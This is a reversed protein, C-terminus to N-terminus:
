RKVPVPKKTDELRRKIETPSMEENQLLTKLKMMPKPMLQLGIIASKMTFPETSPILPSFDPDIIMKYAEPDNLDDFDSLLKEPNDYPRPSMKLLEVFRVKYDTYAERILFSAPSTRLIRREQQNLERFPVIEKLNGKILLKSTVNTPLIDLTSYFMWLIDCLILFRPDPKSYSQGNAVVVPIRGDLDKRKMFDFYTYIEFLRAAMDDPMFERLQKFNDLARDHDLSFSKFVFNGVGVWHAITEPSNYTNQPISM